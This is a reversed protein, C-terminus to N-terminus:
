GLFNETDLCVFISDGAIGDNDRCVKDKDLVSGAGQRHSLEVVSTQIANIVPFSRNEEDVM